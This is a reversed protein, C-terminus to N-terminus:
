GVDLSLTKNRTLQTQRVVTPSILAVDFHGEIVSQRLNKTNTVDTYLAVYLQWDVFIPLKEVSMVGIYVVFM